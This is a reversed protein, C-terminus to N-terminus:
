EEGQGMDASYVDDDVQAEDIPRTDRMAEAFPDGKALQAVPKPDITIGTFPNHLDEGSSVVPQPEPAKPTKTEQAPEPWLSRQTM